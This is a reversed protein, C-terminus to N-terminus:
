KLMAILTRLTKSTVKTGGIDITAGIPSLTLREVVQLDQKTFGQCGFYVKGDKVQPTYESIRLKYAELEEQTALRLIDQMEKLEYTHKIGKYMVFFEGENEGLGEVKYPTTDSSNKWVIHDGVHLEEGKGAKKAALVATCYEEWQGPLEYVKKADDSHNHIELKSEVVCYILYDTNVWSSVKNNWESDEEVGMDKLTNIMGKLLIKNTTHAVLNSGGGGLVGIFTKAM